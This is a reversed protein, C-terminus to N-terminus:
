ANAASQPAGPTGSTFGHAALFARYEPWAGCLYDFEGPRSPRAGELLSRIEGAHAGSDGGDLQTLAFARLLRLSRMQFAGTMGEAGHWGAVCIPEVGAFDKARAAILADITVLV